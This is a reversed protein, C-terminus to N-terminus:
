FILHWITIFLLIFNDDTVASVGPDLEMFEICTVQPVM